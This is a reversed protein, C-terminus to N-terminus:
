KFYKLRVAPRLGYETFVDPCVALVLPFGWIKPTLWLNADSSVRGTFYLNESDSSEPHNKEHPTHNGSEVDSRATTIGKHM